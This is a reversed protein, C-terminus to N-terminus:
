GCASQENRRYNVQRQQENQACCQALPDSRLGSGLSLLGPRAIERFCLGVIDAGVSKEAARQSAVAIEAMHLTANDRETRFRHPSGIARRIITGQAWTPRRIRVGCCMPTVNVSYSGSQLRSIM